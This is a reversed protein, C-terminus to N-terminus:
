FLLRIKNCQSVSTKNRKQRKWMFVAKNRGLFLSCHIVNFFTNTYDEVRLSFHAVTLLFSEQYYFYERLILGLLADMHLSREPIFRKDWLPLKHTLWVMLLSPIIRSTRTLHFILISNVNLFFPQRSRTKGIQLWKTKFIQWYTSPGSVASKYFM